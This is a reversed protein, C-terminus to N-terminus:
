MDLSLLFATNGSGCALIPNHDHETYDATYCGQALGGLYGVTQLSSKEIVRMGNVDSGGAVIFDKGGWKACYLHCVHKDTTSLPVNKILRGSEFDWIQLSNDRRWSGTLVHHYIPDIDLADGCVHAGFIRRVAHAERDDWVQITNDWGSSLLINPSSPHYKVAFVRSAHGDMKDCSEGKTLTQQCKMTELDYVRIKSDDGGTSFRSLNCNFDCCFIERDEYAKQALQQSTLYWQRVYGSSYTATLMYLSGDTLPRFRICTVPLKKEEADLKLTYVHTYTSVMFVKIDGNSCGFALYKGDNSFKSCLIPSELEVSHLIRLKGEVKGNTHNNVSHAGLSNKRRTRNTVNNIDSVSGM